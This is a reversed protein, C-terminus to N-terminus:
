AEAEAEQPEAAPSGEEDEAPEEEAAAKSKKADGEDDKAQKSGMVTANITLMVHVKEKGDGGEPDPLEITLRKSGKWGYSGTTFTTPVLATTGIFGPDTPAAPKTEDDPISPPTHTLNLHLPLARAKFANAGLGAKLNNVVYSHRQLWDSVDRVKPGKRGGKLRMPSSTRAAKTKGSSTAGAEDATRKRAPM